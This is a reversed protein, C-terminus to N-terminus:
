SEGARDTFPGPLGWVVTSVTEGEVLGSASHRSVMARVAEDFEAARSEGMRERSFGNRSHISEVYEDVSQTFAVRGTSHRGTVRFLGRGTLEDVLDYPRFDRNTSYRVIWQMLEDRWPLDVLERGSVLALVGGPQLLSAIKAPVVSWDMWHFSESAVVLAYPGDPEFAEATARIWRIPAGSGAARSRAIALMAESPDVADIRDSRDSMGIAVEGTGCGLDLLSRPGAPFLGELTDYLADPYPPRNAYAAAVGADGFQAGFAPGLHAPKTGQDLKV